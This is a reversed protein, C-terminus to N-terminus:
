YHAIIALTYWWYFISSFFQYIFFDFWFSCRSLRCGCCLRSLFFCVRTTISKFVGRSVIDWCEMWCWYSNSKCLRIFNGVIVFRRSIFQIPRLVHLRCDTTMETSIRFVYFFFFVFGISLFIENFSCHVCHFCGLSLSLYLFLCENHGRVTAKTQVRAGMDETYIYIYEHRQARSSVFLLARNGCSLWRM